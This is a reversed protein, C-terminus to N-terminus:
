LAGVHVCIYVPVCTTGTRALLFCAFVCTGVCLCDTHGLVSLRPCAWMYLDQVCKCLGASPVCVSMCRHVLSSCGHLHVGLSRHAPLVMWYKVCERCAPLRPTRSQLVRSQLGRSAIGPIPQWARKPGPVSPAQVLPESPLTILLSLPDILALDQARLM